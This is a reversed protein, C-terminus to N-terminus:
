CGPPLITFTVATAGTAVVADPAAPIDCFPPHDVSTPAPSMGAVAAPAANATVAWVAGCLMIGVATGVRRM